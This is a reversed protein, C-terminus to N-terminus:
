RAGGPWRAWGEGRPGGTLSFAFVVAHMYCTGEERSGDHCHSVYPPAVAVVPPSSRPHPRRHARLGTVREDLWAGGSGRGSDIEEGLAVLWGKGSCAARARRRSRAITEPPRRSVTAGDEHGRQEEGPIIEGRLRAQLEIAPPRSRRIHFRAGKTEWGQEEEKRRLSLRPPHPKVTPFPLRNKLHLFPPNPIAQKTESDFTPKPIDCHIKPPTQFSPPPLSKISEPDLKRRPQSIFRGAQNRPLSGGFRNINPKFHDSSQFISNRNISTWQL